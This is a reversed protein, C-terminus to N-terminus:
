RTAFLLIKAAVTIVVVGLVFGALADPSKVALRILVAVWLLGAVFLLPLTFLPLLPSADSANCLLAGASTVLAWGLASRWWPAGGRAARLSDTWLRWGEALWARM